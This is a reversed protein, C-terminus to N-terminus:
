KQDDYNNRAAPENIPYRSQRYLVMGCNACWSSNDSTAIMLEGCGPCRWRYEIKSTWSWSM